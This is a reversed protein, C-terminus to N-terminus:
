RAPFLLVPSNDAASPLEHLWFGHWASVTSAETLPQYGDASYHWLTDSMVNAASASSLSCASGQDSCAGSTTAVRLLSADVASSLPSGRLQWIFTDTPLGSLPLGICGDSATCGANDPQDRDVGVSGAPLNLQVPGGSNQIIWFGSGPNLIGDAGPDVYDSSTSSTVDYQYVIWDRGYVAPDGDILIDDAFLEEVTTGVPPQCPLSLTIWQLDPLSYETDCGDGTDAVVPVQSALVNDGNSEDWVGANAFRVSYEPIRYNAPDGDPMWLSLSATPTNLDTPAQFTTTFTYTQDNAFWNKPRTDVSSYLLEAGDADVLRIYVPRDHYIPAWGTNKLTVSVTIDAGPSISDPVDASVLEYRYGLKKTIEDFCGQAEWKERISSFWLTNVFSYGYYEMAALTAPCDNLSSANCTEGGIPVVSSDNSSYSQLQAVSPCSETAPFCGYTGTDDPSSLFCDNYHGTRYIRDDLAGSAEYQQKYFPTRVMIFADDPSVEYMKDILRKRSQATTLDSSTYYWEGYAGIGGAQLAVIVDEYPVLAENGLQTLHAEQVALSADNDAFAQVEHYSLRLVAKVRNSKVATLWSKIEDLKTDPIVPNTRYSGLQIIGWAITHNDARLQEIDGISGSGVVMFKALGREPNLIVGDDPAYTM